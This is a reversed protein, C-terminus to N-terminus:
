EGLKEWLKINAKSEDAFSRAADIERKHERIAKMFMLCRWCEPPRPRFRDLDVIRGVAVNSPAM